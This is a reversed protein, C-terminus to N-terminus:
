NNTNGEIKEGDFDSLLGNFMIKKNWADVVKLTVKNQKNLSVTYTYEEGVKKSNPPFVYVNGIENDKLNGVLYAALCGVGNFQLPAKDKTPNYGNRIEVNGNNLIVKIDNGIGSPYGDMQRYLTVITKGEDKIHILSRTGM